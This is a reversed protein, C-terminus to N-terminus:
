GTATVARVEGGRGAAMEVSEVPGGDAATAKSTAEATATATETTDTTTDTALRRLRTAERASLDDGCWDVAQALTLGEVDTMQALANGARREAAAVAADREGIATLVQEVLDRMRRERRAQTQRQRKAAGLAQQRARQRIEAGGKGM